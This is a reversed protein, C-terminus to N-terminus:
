NAIEGAVVGPRRGLAWLAAIALVGALAIWAGAALGPAAYRWRLRHSGAPIAVARRLVDAVLWTADRDDVTVTWGPAASSSVVAYAPGGAACTLALDGARWADITCPRPQQGTPTSPGAGALV